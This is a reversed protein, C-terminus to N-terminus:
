LGTPADVFSWPLGFAGELHAALAQVGLTETAYHGAYVLVLGQEPADVASWHPGEGTIFTDVGAAKAERITDPNVGGGTIIAWRRTVRGEDVASAVVQGGFRGAYVGARAVIAATPEATAGQVGLKISKWAGFAADPTLGLERALLVNNGFTPHCDLPLHASYVAIDHDILLRVRTYQSGVIPLSGGWFLGHHVILLDAEAAIAAEITRQSADVAAAIKRVRGGNAAQLGNLAPPYDPITAVDLLQDLHSVVEDLAVGTSASAGRRANTM